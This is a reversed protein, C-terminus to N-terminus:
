FIHRYKASSSGTIAANVPITKILWAIVPDWLVPCRPCHEATALTPNLLLEQFKQWTEWLVLSGWLTKISRRFPDLYAKFWKRGLLIMNVSCYCPQLPNFNAPFLSSFFEGTRELSARGGINEPLDTCLYDEVGEMQSNILKFGFQRLSNSFVEPHIIYRHVHQRRSWSFLIVPEVAELNM